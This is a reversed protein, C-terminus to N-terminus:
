RTNGSQCVRMCVRVLEFGGGSMAAWISMYAWPRYPCNSNSTRAVSDGGLRAELEAVRAALTQVQATLAQVQAWLARILADKEEHTLQSLDPLETM